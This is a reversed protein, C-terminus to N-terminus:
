RTLRDLLLAQLQPDALPRFHGPTALVVDDAGDLASGGPIHPDWFAHASTIRHNVEVEAALALITADSPMFARVSRMPIWRAYVSGSFPTNVAVMSAIRGQPDHQLM